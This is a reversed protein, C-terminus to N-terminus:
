DIDSAEVDRDFVLWSESNTLLVFMEHEWNVFVFYIIALFHLQLRFFIEGFYLFRFKRM